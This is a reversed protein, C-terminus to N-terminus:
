RQARFFDLVRTNFDKAEEYASHGFEPYMYVPCGLKEAIEETGRATVIKDQAGGLLLVPCKIEPLRDYTDCSVCSKALKIFREPPIFKQTKMVISFLRSYRKIYEDSYLKQMQDGVLTRYDNQEALKIWRAIVAEVTPNSRSLTVALAMSNVLEPHDLALYQAIMGGQSVGFVDAKQIGLSHMNQAIDDAFDKVSFGEPIPDRRDFVWVRYDKAFIKYSIALPLGAGKVPRLNLGQIMILDRSGSGFSICDTRAGGTDITFERANYLM